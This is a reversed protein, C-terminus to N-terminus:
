LPKTAATAPRAQRNDPFILAAPRCGRSCSHCPVSFRSWSKACVTVSNGARIIRKFNGCTASGGSTIASATRKKTTWTFKRGSIEECLQIAELMSCNCHRSGGINYVEAVRPARIFAAFAEVLDFSHINDRVQKGKYGFVRYAPREGRLDDPLFSVTCSRAPM